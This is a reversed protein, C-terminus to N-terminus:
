GIHAPSVGPELSPEAPLVAYGSRRRCAVGAASCLRACMYVGSCCGTVVLATMLFVILAHQRYFDDLSDYMVFTKNHRALAYQYLQVDLYTANAVIAKQRPTLHATRLRSRLKPYSLWLGVLFMAPFFEAVQVDYFVKRRLQPWDHMYDEYFAVYTMNDIWRKARALAVHPPCEARRQFHMYCGLQYTMANQAYSESFATLEPPRKPVNSSLFNELTLLAFGEENHMGKTKLFTRFRGGCFFEHLSLVREAPDRLITFRRMRRTANVLDNRSFYGQILRTKPNEFIATGGQKNMKSEVWPLPPVDSGEDESGIKHPTWELDLANFLHTRTSDGATRLVHQFVILDQNTRATYKNSTQFIDHILGYRGRNMFTKEFARNTQEDLSVAWFGLMSVM